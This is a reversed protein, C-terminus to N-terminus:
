KIKKYITLPPADGSYALFPNSVNYVMSYDTLNRSVCSDFNDTYSPSLDFSITGGMAIYTGNTLNDIYSVSCNELYAINYKYSTLLNAEGSFFFSSYFKSSPHTSMYNIFSHLTYMSARYFGIDNNLVSIDYYLVVCILIFAIAYLLMSKHKLMAELGLATVVILPLTFVTTIYTVESIPYYDVVGKAINVNSPFFMITILYFVFLGIFALAWKNKRMFVIDLGAMAIFAYFSAGFYKLYPDVTIPSDTLVSPYFSPYGTTYVLCFNSSVCYSVTPQTADQYVYVAHTLEPYLLYNGAELLYVLGILSYAIIFGLVIFAFNKVVIKYALKEKLAGVICMIAFVLPLLAGIPNTIYTLGAFVGASLYLSIKHKENAIIFAYIAIDGMMMAPVLPQIHTSFLVDVPFFAFLFTGIVAARFRSIREIILFIFFGEIVSTLIVYYIAINASFGFIEQLLIEPYIFGVYFQFEEAPNCGCRSFNNFNIDTYPSFSIQNKFLVVLSYTNLYIGEDQSNAFIPGSYYYFRVSLILLM